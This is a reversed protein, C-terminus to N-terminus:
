GHIISRVLLYIQWIYFGAGTISLGIILGLMVLFLVDIDPADPADSARRAENNPWSIRFDDIRRRHDLDSFNHLAVSEREDNM